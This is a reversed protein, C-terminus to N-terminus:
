SSLHKALTRKWSNALTPVDLLAQTAHVDQKRHHFIQNARKIAWEPSPRHLLELTMGVDIPGQSLVRVYWGTRGSEVIRPVLDHIAWRRAQKWCPQRPQSVEVVADGIRYQDGLCVTPETGGDVVLNEGLGGFAIEPQWFEYHAASYVLVAKDLGGHNVTDAQEDGSLGGEQLALPGAVEQKFTASQWSGEPSELTQVQGTRLSVIKMNATM